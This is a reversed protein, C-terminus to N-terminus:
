STVNIVKEDAGEENDLELDDNENQLDAPHAHKEIDELIDPDGFLIEFKQAREVLVDYQYQDYSNALFPIGVNIYHKRKHDKNKSNM